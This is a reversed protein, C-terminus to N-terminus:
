HCYKYSQTMIYKVNCTMKADMWHAACQTIRLDAESPHNSQFQMLYNESNAISFRGLCNLVYFMPNIVCAKLHFCVDQGKTLAATLSHQLRSAVQLRGYLSSCTSHSPPNGPYIMLFSFWAESRQMLFVPIGAAFVPVTEWFM